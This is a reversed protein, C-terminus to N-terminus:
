SVLRTGCLIVVKNNRLEVGVIWWKTGRSNGKIKTQIWWRGRMQYGM